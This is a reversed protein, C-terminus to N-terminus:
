CFRHTHKPEPLEGLEHYLATQIAGLTRFGYAKRFRVKVVGNLGEVIGSNYQKKARFWNLLLERHKRLSKAQKKLPEIRSRMVQSCWADLFKGAWAPSTYDWFADFGEVLVYARVTKLNYQLLDKLRHKQKGSLDTKRRLLLWRTKKLVPEYGDQKMQKAEGARVEDLAKHLNAVIHYRDLIHTAGPLMKAIVKRYAALLDSCVYAIPNVFADSALGRRRASQKLMVFFSLFSKTSRGEAVHLLRRCGRDIQYVLTAYRHGKAYAVEDVGIAQIGSLDRRELGYAVVWAVSRYVAEWSVGFAEATQKWSLRKAWAALFGKLALTTGSKSGPECWPMWEVKVGCRDCDIRRPAYLLVVALGWLPVFAFRREPQTDYTPGPRGCGSCKGRSGRRPRISVEVGSGNVGAPDAVLQDSQYVFGKIPHVLNLLVKLQMTSRDPLNLTTLSRM